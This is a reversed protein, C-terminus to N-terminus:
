HFWWVSSTWNRKSFVAGHQPESILTITLWIPYETEKKEGSTRSFTGIDTPRLRFGGSYIATHKECKLPHRYIDGGAWLSLIHGRNLYCIHCFQPKKQSGVEQFFSDGWEPNIIQFFVILYEALEQLSM